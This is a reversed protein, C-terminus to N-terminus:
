FITVKWFGQNKQIEDCNTRKHGSEWAAFKRIIGCVNRMASAASGHFRSVLFFQLIPYRVNYHGM